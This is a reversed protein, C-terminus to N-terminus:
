KVSIASVISSNVLMKLDGADNMFYKGSELKDNFWFKIVNKSMACKSYCDNYDCNYAIIVCPANQKKFDEKSFPSSGDYHWDNEPTFVQLSFDVYIEAIEKWYKDYVIGANHEYPVDDWDDGWYDYCNDDGLYFRIVNGKVDFDIIKM